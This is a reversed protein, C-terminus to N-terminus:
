DCPNPDACVADDSCFGSVCQASDNCEAGAAIQPLCEGDCYQGAPCQSHTVCTSETQECVSGLCWAGPVCAEDTECLGGVPVNLFGVAECRGEYCAYGLQCSLGADRDCAEGPRAPPACVGDDCWLYAACDLTTACISGAAPDEVCVGDCRNSLCENSSGCASGIATAPGCTGDFCREGGPCDYTVECNDATPKICTGCSSADRVSCQWGEVCDDADNCDMAEPIACAYLAGIYTQEVFISEDEAPCDLRALGALCEANWEPGTFSQVAPTESGPRQAGVFDICQQQGGYLDRLAPSCRTVYNCMIEGLQQASLSAESDVTAGDNPSTPTKLCIAEAASGECAGQDSSV